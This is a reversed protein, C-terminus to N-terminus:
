NLLPIAWYNESLRIVPVLRPDLAPAAVAAEFPTSCCRWKCVNEVEGKLKGLIRCCFESATMDCLLWWVIPTISIGRSFDVKKPTGKQTEEIKLKLHETKSSVNWPLLLVPWYLHELYLLWWSGIWCLLLDFHWFKFILVQEFLYYVWHYLVVIKILIKSQKM